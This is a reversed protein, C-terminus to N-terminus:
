RGPRPQWFWVFSWIQCVCATADHSFGMMGCVASCGTVHTVNSSARAYAAQSVAAVPCVHRRGVSGSASDTGRSRAGFVERRRSPPVDFLRPVLLAAATTRERTRTRAGRRRRLGQVSPTGRAGRRWRARLARRPARDDLDRRGQLRTQRRGGSDRHVRLPGRENSRPSLRRSLRGRARDLHSLLRGNRSRRRHRFRNRESASVPSRGESVEPGAVGRHLLLRPDRAGALSGGRKQLRLRRNGLFAVCDAGHCGASSLVHSSRRVFCRRRTGESGVGRRPGSANDQDGM